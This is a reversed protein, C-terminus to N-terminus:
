LFTYWIQLMYSKLRKLKSNILFLGQM